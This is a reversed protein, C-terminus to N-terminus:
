VGSPAISGFAWDRKQLKGHIHPWGVWQGFHWTPRWVGCECTWSFEMRVHDAGHGKWQDSIFWQMFHGHVELSAHCQAIKICYILCNCCMHELWLLAPPTCCLSISIYWSSPPSECEAQLCCNHHDQCRKPTVWIICCYQTFYSISRERVDKHIKIYVSHCRLTLFVHRCVKFSVYISSYLLRIYSAESKYSILFSIQISNLWARWRCFIVTFQM